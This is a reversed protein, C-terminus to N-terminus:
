RRAAPPSGAAALSDDAQDIAQDFASLESGAASVKPILPKDLPRCVRRKLHKLRESRDVAQLILEPDTMMTFPNPRFTTPRM